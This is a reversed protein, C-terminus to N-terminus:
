SQRELVSHLYFFVDREEGKRLLTTQKSHSVEGTTILCGFLEKLPYQHSKFSFKFDSTELDVPCGKM